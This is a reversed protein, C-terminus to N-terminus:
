LYKLFSPLSEAVRRLTCIAQAVAVDKPAGGLSVCRFGTKTVKFDKRYVEDLNEVLMEIVELDANVVFDLVGARADLVIHTVGLEGALARLRFFNFAASTVKDPVGFCAELSSIASEVESISRSANLSNEALNRVDATIVYSDSIPSLETFDPTVVNQPKMPNLKLKEIQELQNYLFEMYLDAGINDVQGSQKEGFITGVGRIAMDREALKFGEGLGCCEELALLREQAESRLDGIDAHFMYAYAQRCARGVRGRLQYLSALGFQQVEEIIITNVNPIDLGSEVITTCLLVDAKGCAFYDMAIDLQDGKMKGHAKMIRLCPFLGQLRQLAGDIMQIKPVVYFIQGGRDLEFQIADCVTKENYVQLQTNIPRREPPPTTVLSADRFGTIAMHLTRPIPTASLTLVDVTAKLASIQDKHKVGFRQEEDIVLLNLRKYNEPPLNLMLHTGVVVDTKGMMWRQLVALRSSEKVNRNLLEVSMDFIELRASITAAHQKALVTTPALVFVQGGSSLVRFIARMAVETKGFGVDGVVIRDMPTDRKSLDDYCDRIATAQDPTLTYSFSDNFRKYIDECPPTYPARICHLRKLYLSMQNVVLQRIHKKATAERTQWGKRDQIRSLKPTNIGPKISGPSSYRYLQSRAKEPRIKAQQDAYEIFLYGIRPKPEDKGGAINSAGVTIRRFGLFKGIGYKRHVIYEGPILKFPDISNDPPQNSAIQYDDGSKNDDPKGADQRTNGERLGQPKAGSSSVSNTQSASLEDVIQEAFKDRLRNLGRARKEQFLRRLRQGHTEDELIEPVGLELGESETNSRPTRVNEIGAVPKRKNEDACTVANRKILKRFKDAAYQERERRENRVHTTIEIESAQLKQGAAVATVMANKKLRRVTRKSKQGQAATSETTTRQVDSSDFCGSPLKTGVKSDDFASENMNEHQLIGFNSAPIKNADGVGSADSNTTAAGGSTARGPPRRAGGGSWRYSGAFNERRVALVPAKSALFFM